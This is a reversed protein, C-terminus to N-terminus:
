ILFNQFVQADISVQSTYPNSTSSNSTSPDSTSPDSPHVIDEIRHPICYSYIEPSNDPCYPVDIQNHELLDFRHLINDISLGHTHTEVVHLTELLPSARIHRPCNAPLLIEQGKNFHLLDFTYNRKGLEHKSSNALLIKLNCGGLAHALLATTLLVHIILVFYVINKSVKAM